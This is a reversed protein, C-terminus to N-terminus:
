KIIFAFNIYLSFLLALNNPLAMRYERPGLGRDSSRTAQTVGNQTNGEM